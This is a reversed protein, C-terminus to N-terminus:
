LGAIILQDLYFEKNFCAILCLHSEPEHYEDNEQFHGRYQEGESLITSILRTASQRLRLRLRPRVPGETREVVRISQAMGEALVEQRRRATGM